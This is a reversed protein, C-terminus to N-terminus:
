ISCANRSTAINKVWPLFLVNKWFSLPLSRWWLYLAAQFFTIQPGMWQVASHSNTISYKDIFQKTACKTFNANSRHILDASEVCIIHCEVVVEIPKEYLVKSVEVYNLTVCNRSYAKLYCRFSVLSENFSFCKTSRFRTKMIAATSSLLLAISLFGFLKMEFQIIQRFFFKSRTM